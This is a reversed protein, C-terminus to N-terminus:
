RVISALEDDSLEEARTIIIPGGNVGSVQLPLVKGVLTMFAPPNAYAQTALYKEGGVSDLAGLIMAKVDSTLKNSTGKARGGRREGPKAGKNARGSRVATETM